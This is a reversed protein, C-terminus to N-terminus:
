RLERRLTLTRKKITQSCTGQGHQSPQHLAIKLMKLTAMSTTRRGGIGGVKSFSLIISAKSANASGGLCGGIWGTRKSKREDLVLVRGDRLPFRWGKARSVIADLETAKSEVTELELQLCELGRINQFQAGWSKQDFRDSPRSRNEPSPRGARKPDLALPADVEWMWWDTHRITILLHTPRAINWLGTLRAFGSVRVSSEELWFQQAFVHIRRLERRRLLSGPRDDLPITKGHMNPPGRYYWSVQENISAPLRATEAYVRRCTLLLNTDIKHACTYGPRYYYANREYRRTPDEYATLAYKFISNRVEPPIRNFLPSDSQPNIEKACLSPM